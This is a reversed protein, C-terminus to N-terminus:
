CNMDDGCWSQMRKTEMSPSIQLYCGDILALTLFGLWSCCVIDDEGGDKVGRNKEVRTAGAGNQVMKM